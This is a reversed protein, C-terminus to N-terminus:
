RSGVRAKASGTVRAGIANGAAADPVFAQMYFEFGVLLPNVPVTYTFTAFPLAAPVVATAEITVNAFCLPMGIVDLHIPPTPTTSLVLLAVAPVPHITFSAAEGLWPGPDISSFLGFEPPNATVCGVAHGWTMAPDNETGLTPTSDGYWADPGVINIASRTIRRNALSSGIAAPLQATLPTATWRGAFVATAAHPGQAGGWCAYDILDAPNASPATRFWAVSDAVGLAPAGPLFVDAPTNAGAVGLHIVLVGFSPVAVAPLALSTAGLVLHHGTTQFPHNSAIVEIAQHDNPLPQILLESLEPDVFFQATVTPALLLFPLARALM